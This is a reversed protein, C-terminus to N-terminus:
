HFDSSVEFNHGRYPEPLVLLIDFHAEDSVATGEFGSGSHQFFAGQLLESKSENMREKVAELFENLM